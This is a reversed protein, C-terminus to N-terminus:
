YLFGRYLSGVIRLKIVMLMIRLIKQKKDTVIVVIDNSNIKMCNSVARYAGQRIVSELFLFKHVVRLCSRLVM